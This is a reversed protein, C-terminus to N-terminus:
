TAGRRDNPDRRHVVVVDNGHRDQVLMADHDYEHLLMDRLKPWHVLVHAADPVVRPWRLLALVCAIERGDGGDLVPTAGTIVDRAGARAADHGDNTGLRPDTM